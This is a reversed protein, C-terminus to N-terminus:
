LACREDAGTIRLILAAIANAAVCALFIWAVFRAWSHLTAVYAAAAIVLGMLVASNVRINNSLLGSIYVPVELLIAALPLALVIALLRPLFRELPLAVCATSTLLVAFSVAYTEFASQHRDIAVLMRKSAVPEVARFRIAAGLRFLAFHHRSPLQLARPDDAIFKM